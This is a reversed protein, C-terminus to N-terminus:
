APEQAPDAAPETAPDNLPPGGNHGMKSNLVTGLPVTAGQVYLKDGEPMPPRNDLARAENPTLQGTQIGRAMADIRSKLDGRLMGDLSHEVYRARRRQGFLKLNLEDEFASTWHVIIHKVLQLDQQETNAMTGNTLDQLFIPPMQYIRAIEELQFRRAEVMQGKSPDVGIPKLSHGPPIGFFSESAKKALDIARRIDAMARKFADAGQPLPGELALPPVGGGAFFTAAYNRMAISLAIADACKSIPSYADLQNTKLAFPVDIVDAAPYEKSDFRYIKRGGQRRVTTRTPDMPWLAVVKEGAREIWTLGRGGTFAQQWMYQRWGFSTWEPNPAENLLMQLEGDIRAAEGDKKRYSHLPLSALSRSLFMVASFVAPEGLATEITVVPLQINRNALGFFQLVEGADASLSVTDRELPNGARHEAPAGGTM